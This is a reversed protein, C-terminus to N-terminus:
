EANDDGNLKFFKEMFDKSLREKNASKIEEKTIRYEVYMMWMASISMTVAVGFMFMIILGQVSLVSKGGQKFLYRSQDSTGTRVVM